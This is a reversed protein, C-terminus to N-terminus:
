LAPIPEPIGNTAQGSRLRDVRAQVTVDDPNLTLVTEVERIAAPINGQQEYVVSLYWHANAYEPALEIVRQLEM